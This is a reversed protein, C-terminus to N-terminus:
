VPLDEVAQILVLRQVGITLLSTKLKGKTKNVEDKDRRPCYKVQVTRVVGHDDKFVDQVRCLQFFGRVKTEYKLLCVDGVVLDRHRKAAKYTHYPLLHPFVQLKWMNWWTSLLEEQYRSAQGYNEEEEQTPQSSTTTTRGVLLQNPTIAIMDEDTLSRIGIPRDNVISAARALVVTLAAYTITPKSNILTSALMHALTSKLAKVRSEALGNRWQCGSPVFEWVTGERASRVEIEDWAWKAPDESEKWTVYNDASTLQSGRDSVVKRPVGRIAVFNDWQLLFAETGYNHMLQTHVAGTSRCVIVLPWVKMSMRGNVMGKVLTPGMLDLSVWTFPKSGVAFRDEPLDGMRQEIMVKKKMRCWTCKREVEQALRWGRWIWAKTRSRWLTSKPGRHDQEHAEIMIIKALRAEPMLIPLEEAGLLKWIGKGLRGRTIWRGNSWTPNLGSLKGSKVVGDTEVTAVMFMMRRALDLGKVSPEKRIEREDGSASAQIIRAVIGEVTRLKNHNMMARKVDEFVRPFVVVRGSTATVTATRSRLEEEPVQRRFDRSAPWLDRAFSVERPGLQWESAQDVDEMKARGKTALDAINRPGPWHHLPDVQIGMMRWAEQHEVIEAIRNAFWVNLLHQQCEVSAITCQSDGFLSIVSPKDVLGPLMSTVLRSLLLLGRMETRPTSMRAGAGSPTVRAKAALLRVELTEGNEGVKGRKYRLYTVAASAPDGGDWWGLLEPREEAGRPKVSRPFTVDEMGVIEKLMEKCKAGMDGDVCTDWDYKDRKKGKANVEEKKMGSLEQLIIKFKITVPSMLGLPDYIGYIQAVVIRKTIKMEDIQWVDERKLEPGQRVKARKNTLNVGVHFVIEDKTPNWPLGLVGGGLLNITDVDTEGSRVMVKVRFGGLDLIQAVLGDYTHVGDVVSHKGILSQVMEESGGGCGDDVYGREVMAAVEVSIARGEQAVKQKAVELGCTGVRDGFAMRLFGYTTWEDKMRGWRWVLKRMHMEEEFTHVSNYAKTIDWVVVEEYSRWTVIAQLLPVLSNPGKPLCMNYSFGSNNNSLSSNSVVRLKTTVSGPKVVGHHSIYNHAGDWEEMERRSVERIVNRDLYGQIEQNYPEIEGREVLKRELGRAIAVAQSRNDGLLMPDSILPYHFTVKRKEVDVEIGAEIMLLEDQERRTMEQSRISCSKCSNCSGCRRPQSVGMEECENFHFRQRSRLLTNAVATDNLSGPSVDTEGPGGERNPLGVVKFVLKGLTAHSRRNAEENILMPGTEIDEHVGDLIYGSGFMSDMLRLSGRIHHKGALTPHLEAHHIGILLDVPGKPRDVQKLDALIPFLQVAGSVDVKEQMATITEMEFASIWHETKERDLLCVDYQTTHWAEPGRGTVQLYQVAPKGKLGAMEAFARRILNINSGTDWFTLCPELVDKVGIWQVQLLVNRAREMGSCDHAQCRKAANVYVMNCFQNNSGHLLQHHKGGCEVGNVYKDCTPVDVGRIRARCEDKTHDGTWDLCLACGRSAQVISAREAASITHFSPCSSLRSKYQTEGEDNLFTHQGQCGPCPKQPVRMNANAVVKAARGTAVVRTCQRQLHGPEKCKFCVVDMRSDGYGKGVVAIAEAEENNPSLRLRAKQRKSEEIMFSALIKLESREGGKREAVKHEYFKDKCAISPLNMCILELTPSHDLAHLSDIEKLDARVQKWKRYLEAFKDGETKAASSYKFGTLEKTLESCIETSQGFEEDMFAWMEELTDINKLDPEVLGPVARTMERLQFEENFSPGVCQKWEKRFSPYDRKAGSFKPFPRKEFYNIPPRSSVGETSRIIGRERGEGNSDQAAAIKKRGDRCRKASGETLSKRKDGMEERQTADLSIISSCLKRAREILLEVEDLLSGQLVLVRESCGDDLTAKVDVLIADVTSEVEKFEMKLNEVESTSAEKGDAIKVAEMGAVLINNVQLSAAEYSTFSAEYKVTLEGLGVDEEDVLIGYQTFLEDYEAWAREGITLKRTITAIPTARDENGAILGELDTITRKLKTASLEVKRKAQAAAM